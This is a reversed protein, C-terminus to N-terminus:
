LVGAMSLFRPKLLMRSSSILPVLEFHIRVFWLLSGGRRKTTTHMNQVPLLKELVQLVFKRSWITMWSLSQWALAIEGSELNWLVFSFRCSSLTSSAQSTYLAPEGQLGVFMIVNPKGKKPVFAPKGPDLM